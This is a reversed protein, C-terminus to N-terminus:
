HFQVVVMQLLTCDNVNVRKKGGRERKMVGKEGPIAVDSRCNDCGGWYVHHEVRTGRSPTGNDVVTFRSEDRTVHRWVRKKKKRRVSLSKKIIVNTFCETKCQSSIFLM